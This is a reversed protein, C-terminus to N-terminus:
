QPAGKENKRRMQARPKSFNEGRFFMPPPRRALRRSLGETHVHGSLKAPKRLSPRPCTTCRPAGDPTRTEADPRAKTRVSGRITLWSRAPPEYHGAPMATQM